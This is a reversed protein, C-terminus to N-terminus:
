LEELDYATFEADSDVHYKYKGSCEFMNEAIEIAESRSDAEVEVRYIEILRGTVEYNM